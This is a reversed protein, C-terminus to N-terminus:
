TSREPMRGPAATRDPTAPSTPAVALCEAIFDVIAPAHPALADRLDHDGDVPMWAAAPQAAHLRLGDSLPVVSDQRGHVLLARCAVRPLLTLPAIDDFRAGITQQVHALVLPGLWRRPLRHERMWREMMEQPHAFASLSVVARVDRQRAAHLLVAAAGVSHGLVAVRDGAIGPQSRLMALVAALDDAFRPLSCFDEASSHGHSSADFLAVALGQDVLPQVVPWLTSANAGWGHVGVVLPLPATRAATSAPRALWVALRQGRLGIVQTRVVSGGSLPRHEPAPQHALRQPRLGALLARHLWRRWGRHPASVLHDAPM